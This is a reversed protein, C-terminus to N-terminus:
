WEEYML